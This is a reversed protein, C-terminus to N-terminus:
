SHLVRTWLYYSGVALGALLLLPLLRALVPYCHLYLLRLHRLYNWQERFGFKTEGAVRDVFSIPVEVIPHQRKGKVFVELGIKYGLPALEVGELASRAVAFFGSTLDRVRTLPRAMFIATRSIIERVLTWGATSGGQVYRSGVTIEAEGALIPAVLPALKEPPHSLDADMCVLLPARAEDFGRIVASALGRESTRVIIRVPHGEEALTAVEQESGDQSNDDVFILEYSHPFAGRIRESLTRLNPKEQYTPVVISVDPVESEEPPM